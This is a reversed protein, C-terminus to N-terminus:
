KRNLGRAGTSGLRGESGPARDSQFRFAISVAEISVKEGRKKSFLTKGGKNKYLLGTRVQEEELAPVLFRSQVLSM